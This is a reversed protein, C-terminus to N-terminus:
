NFLMLLEKLYAVYITALAFAMFGAVLFFTLLPYFIVAITMAHNAKRQFQAGLLFLNEVLKGSRAGSEYYSLFEPPLFDSSKLSNLPDEGIALHAQVEKNLHRLPKSNVTSTARQWAQAIPVGANLLLALTYTFDGLNKSTRYSKLFPLGAFVKPLISEQASKSFVFVGGITWIPLILAASQAIHVPANWSFGTDLNFMRSLPILLAFLHYIALPYAFGLAAKYVTAGLQARRESLRLFTEALNGSEFAAAIAVRDTLPLFSGASHLTSEAAHATELLTALKSRKEAPLFLCTRFADPLSIGAELHQSLHLYANALRSSSLLM